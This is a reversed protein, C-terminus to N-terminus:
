GELFGRYAEQIFEALFYLHFSYILHKEEAGSTNVATKGGEM